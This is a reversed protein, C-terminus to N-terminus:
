TLTWLSVQVEEDFSRQTLDYVNAAGLLGMPTAHGQKAVDKSYLRQFQAGMAKPLPKFHFYQLGYRRVLRWLQVCSPTLQATLQSSCYISLHMSTGDALIIEVCCCPM